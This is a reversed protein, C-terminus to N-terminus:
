TKKKILNLIKKQVGAERSNRSKRSKRSRQKEAKRSRQKEAKEAKKAKRSRQKEAKRSKSKRNRQKEAKEAKGAWDGRGSKQILVWARLYMLQPQYSSTTFMITHISVMVMTRLKCKQSGVKEQFSIANCTLLSAQMRSQPSASRGGGLGGERKKINFGLSTFVNTPTPM